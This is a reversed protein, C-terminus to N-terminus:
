LLPVDVTGSADLMQKPNILRPFLTLFHALGSIQLLTSEGLGLKGM